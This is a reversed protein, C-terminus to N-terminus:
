VTCAVLEAEFWDLLEDPTGPADAGSGDAIEARVAARSQTLLMVIEGLHADDLLPRNAHLVRHVELIVAFRHVPSLRDEEVARALKMLSSPGSVLDALRRMREHPPARRPLAQGLAKWREGQVTAYFDYLNFATEELGTDPGAGDPDEDVLRHRELCRILGSSRERLEDIIEGASLRPTYDRTSHDLNIESFLGAISVPEANRTFTVTFGRAKGPGQPCAIRRNECAMGLTVDGVAPLRLVVGTCYTPPESSWVAYSRDKWDFLVTLDFPLGAPPDDSEDTFAKGQLDLPRLKPLASRRAKKLDLSRILMAEVNGGTKKHAAETMNCSGVAVRLHNGREKSLAYLKAHTFRNAEGDELVCTSVGQSDLAELHAPALGFAGERSAGPVLKVERANLAELLKPLKKSGSWYPSLVTLCDWRQTQGLRLRQAFTPQGGGIGNIHLEPGDTAGYSGMERLIELVDRIAQCEAQRSRPLKRLWTLFRVLEAHAPADADDIWTEGLVELNHGWGSLTLNASGCALYVAPYTEGEHEYRGALLMLKPHFYPGKRAGEHAGPVRVAWTQYRYDSAGGGSLAAADHFVAVSVGALRANVEARRAEAGRAEVGFLTPLVNAEFFRPDFTFTTFLAAEVGGSFRAAAQAIAERVRVSM